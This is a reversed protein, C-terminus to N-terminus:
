LAKRQGAGAAVAVDVIRFGEPSAASFEIRADTVRGERAQVAAARRIATHLQSIFGRPFLAYALFDGELGQQARLTRLLEWREPQEVM